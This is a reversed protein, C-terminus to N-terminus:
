PAPAVVAPAVNEPEAPTLEAPTERLVRPLLRSPTPQAADADGPMYSVVGSDRAREVHLVTLEETLGDSSRQSVWAQEASRWYWGKVTNDWTGQGAIARLREHLAFGNTDGTVRVRYGYLGGEADYSFVLLCPVGLFRVNDDFRRTYHATNRHTSGRAGDALDAAASGFRTAGIGSFRDLGAAASTPAALLSVDYTVRLPPTGVPHHAIPAFRKDMEAVFCGALRSDGSKGASASLQGSVGAVGVAVSAVAGPATGAALACAAAAPSFDAMMADLAALDARRDRYRETTRVWSQYAAQSDGAPESPNGGEFSDGRRSIGMGDAVLSVREPAPSLVEKAMALAVLILV